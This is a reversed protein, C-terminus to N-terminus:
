TRRFDRLRPMRMLGIKVFATREARKRLTDTSPNPDLRKNGSGPHRGLKRKSFEPQDEALRMGIMAWWRIMMTATGNVPM